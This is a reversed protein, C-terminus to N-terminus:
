CQNLIAAAPGVGMAPGGRYAYGAWLKGVDEVGREPQYSLISPKVVGDKLHSQETESDTEMLGEWPPGSHRLTLDM